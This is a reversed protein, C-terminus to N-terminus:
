NESMTLRKQEEEVVKQYEQMAKQIEKEKLNYIEIRYENLICELMYPPLGLDLCRNICDALEKKAQEFLLNDPIQM